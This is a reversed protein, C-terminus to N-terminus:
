RRCGYWIMHRENLSDSTDAFLTSTSGKRDLLRSLEKNQRVVETPLLFRSASMGSPSCVMQGGMAVARTISHVGDAAVILDAYLSSGDDLEVVGSRSDVTRVKASLRLTAAGSGKLALRLLENHFDVRHVSWVPAGFREQADDFKVCSIPELTTGHCTEWGQLRCACAKEFSFGLSSLVRAGNPALVLAAGTEAAFSSKELIQEIRDAYDRTLHKCSRKQFYTYLRQSVQVSHGAQRLATASCLGAIGAGIIIIKLPM